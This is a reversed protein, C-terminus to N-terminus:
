AEGEQILEISRIPIEDNDLPRYEGPSTEILRRGDVRIKWIDKDFVEDRTANLKDIFISATGLTALEKKAEKLLNRETLPATLYLTMIRPLSGLPQRLAAILSFYDEQIFPDTFFYDNHTNANELALGGPLLKINFRTTAPERNVQVEAVEVARFWDEPEQPLSPEVVLQSGHWNKIKSLALELMKRVKHMNLSTRDQLAEILSDTQSIGYGLTEAQIMSDPLVSVGSWHRFREYERYIKDRNATDLSLLLLDTQPYGLRKLDMEVALKAAEHASKQLDDKWVVSKSKELLKERYDELTVLIPLQLKRELFTSFRVIPATTGGLDYSGLTEAVGPAPGSTTKSTKKKKKKSM